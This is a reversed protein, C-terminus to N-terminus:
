GVVASLSDRRAELLEILFGMSHTLADFKTAAYDTVVLPKGHRFLAARWGYGSPDCEMVPQFGERGLVVALADAAANSPAQVELALALAPAPATQGENLQALLTLYAHVLADLKTAQPQGTAVTVGEVKSFSGVHRGDATQDFKTRYGFNYLMQRLENTLHSVAAM